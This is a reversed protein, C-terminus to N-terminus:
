GPADLLTSRRDRASEGDGKRGLLWAHVGALVIWLAIQGAAMITRFVTALDEPLPGSVTNTPAIMAVLLLFVLPVLAGIAAFGSGFRARLRNFTYGSLGCAVAGVVMMGIYLTLRTGVPLSQEVGPPQPPLVLWPAGSVTVFGAASLLYSKTAGAGPLSPELFYFVAGLLVSGLLMGLLVGGAVSVLSTMVGPVVSAGGHGGEEFTEAYGILPNGVLAVFLGFVTGAVVGAKMGRLVYDTLMAM